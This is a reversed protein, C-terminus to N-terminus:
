CVTSERTVDRLSVNAYPENKGPFVFTGGFASVQVPFSENNTFKFTVSVEKENVLDPIGDIGKFVPEVSFKTLEVPEQKQVQEVIPSEVAEAPAAPAPEPEGIQALVALPVLALLSLSALSFKM